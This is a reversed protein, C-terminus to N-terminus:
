MPWWARDHLSGTVAVVKWREAIDLTSLVNGWAHAAVRWARRSGNTKAVVWTV